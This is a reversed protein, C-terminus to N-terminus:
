APRGLSNLYEHLRQHLEKSVTPEVNERILLSPVGKTKVLAQQRPYDWGAVDDSPPLYFVVGDVKRESLKAAFWADAETAPFVRPSPTDFYYKEFIAVVPDGKLSVDREGAARSGRWDDEGVVFGGLSEIAVHLEVHDLSSGKILVRPGPRPTRSAFGELSAELNLAFDTRNMTYFGNILRLAESGEVLGRERLDLLKRITARARNSEIIAESLADGHAMKLDSALQRTRELGYEYSEPLRSHLLNYLHLRPMHAASGNRGVERLYLYLKHEQESTRPIVVTDLHSWAGSAIRDFLVRIRREFVNEMWHDALPTPREDRELLAPAFGAARM